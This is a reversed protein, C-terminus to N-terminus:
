LAFSGVGTALIVLLVMWVTTAKPANGMLRLWLYTVIALSVLIGAVVRLGRRIMWKRRRRSYYGSIRNQLVARRDSLDKPPESAPAGVIIKFLFELLKSLIDTMANEGKRETRGQLRRATRAM